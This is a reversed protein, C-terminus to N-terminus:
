SSSVRRVFDGVTRLLEDDRLPAAFSLLLTSHNLAPYRRVEFSDFSRVVDYPQQETM